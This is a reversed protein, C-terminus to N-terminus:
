SLTDFVLGNTQLGLLDIRSELFTFGAALELLESRTNTNNQLLTVYNTESAKDPYVGVVNKYVHKVWASDSNDSILQEIFKNDTILKSIDKTTSGSDFYSLGNSFFQPIFDKGFSAAILMASKYGAESSSFDFAITKDSFVVREVRALVDYDDTKVKHSVNFHGLLNPKSINYNKISESYIVTDLCKDWDPFKDGGATNYVVSEKGNFTKYFNIQIKYQTIYSPNIDIYYVGSSLDPIAAFNYENINKSRFIERGAENKMTFSLSDKGGNYYNIVSSNDIYVGSETLYSYTKIFDLFVIFTGTEGKKLPTTQLKLTSNNWGDVTDNSGISTVKTPYFENPLIPNEWYGPKIETIELTYNETFVGQSSGQVAFLATSEVLFNFGNVSLKKADPRGSFIGLPTVLNYHDFDNTIQEVNFKVNIFTPKQVNFQYVDFTDTLTTLSGKIINNIPIIGAYDRYSYSSASVKSSTRALSNELLIAM